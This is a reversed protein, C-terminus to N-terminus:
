KSKDPLCRKELDNILSVTVPNLKRHTRAKSLFDQATYYDKFAHEKDIENSINDILPRISSLKKEYYTINNDFEKNKEGLNHGGLPGVPGSESDPPHAVPPPSTIPDVISEQKNVEKPYLLNLIVTGLILVILPFVVYILFKNMTLNIFNNDFINFSHGRKM